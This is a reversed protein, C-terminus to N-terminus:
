HSHIAKDANIFMDLFNGTSVTQDSKSKPQTKSEKGRTKLIALQELDKGYKQAVKELLIHLAIKKSDETSEKFLTTCEEAFKAYKIDSLKSKSTKIFDFFAQEKGYEKDIEQLNSMFGLSDEIVTRSVPIDSWLKSSCAGADIDLSKDDCAYAFCLSQYMLVSFGILKLGKIM